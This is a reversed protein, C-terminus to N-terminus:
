WPRMSAHMSYKVNAGQHCRRVGVRCGGAFRGSVSILCQFQMKPSKELRMATGRQTSTAALTIKNRRSASRWSSFASSRGTYTSVLGDELYFTDDSYWGWRDDVRETGPIWEGHFKGSQLQVVCGGDDLLEQVEELTYGGQTWDPAFIWAAIVLFLTTFLLSYNQTRKMTIAVPPTASIEKGPKASVSLRTHQVPAQAPTPRMASTCYDDDPVM